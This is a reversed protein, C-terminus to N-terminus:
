HVKAAPTPLDHPTRRLQDERKQISAVTDLIRALFEDRTDLKRKYVENKVWGWFWFDLPSLVQFESLGIDSVM